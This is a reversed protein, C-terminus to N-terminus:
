FWNIRSFQGSGDRGELRAEDYVCGSLKAREIWSRKGIRKAEKSFINGTPGTQSIRPDILRMVKVEKGGFGVGDPVPGYWGMMKIIVYQLTNLPTHNFEGIQPPKHLLYAKVAIALHNAMRDYVTKANPTPALTYLAAIVSPDHHVLLYQALDTTLAFSAKNCLKPDSCRMPHLLLPIRGQLRGGVMQGLESDTVDTKVRSCEGPDYINVQGTPLTRISEGMVTEIRLVDWIDWTTILEEICGMVQEIGPQLKLQRDILLLLIWGRYLAQIIRHLESPSLGPEKRATRIAYQYALAIKRIGLYDSVLVRPQLRLNRLRNGASSLATPTGEQIFGRYNQVMGSLSTLNNIGSIAYRYKTFVISDPAYSLTESLYLNHLIGERHRTFVNYLTKSTLVLALLDSREDIQYIISHIIDYPLVALTAM